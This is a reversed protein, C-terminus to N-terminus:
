ICRIDITLKYNKGCNKCIIKYKEVSNVKGDPTNEEEPMVYFKSKNKCLICKFKINAKIM